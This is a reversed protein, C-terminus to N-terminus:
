KNIKIKKKVRFYEEEEKILSLLEDIFINEEDGDSYMIKWCEPIYKIVKGTYKGYGPFEKVVKRGIYNHNM